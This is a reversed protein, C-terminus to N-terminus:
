THGCKDVEAHQKAVPYVGVCAHTLNDKDEPTLKDDSESGSQRQFSSTRYTTERRSANGSDRTKRETNRPMM